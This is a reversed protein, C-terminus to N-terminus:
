QTFSSVNRDSFDLQTRLFFRFCTFFIPSSSLISIPFKGSILDFKLCVKSNITRLNRLFTNFRSFTARLVVFRLKDVLWPASGPFDGNLMKKGKGHIMNRFPWPPRYFAGVVSSLLPLNLPFPSLILNISRLNSLHYPLFAPLHCHTGYVAHEQSSHHDTPYLEHLLCHFKSLTHILQAEPRGSM